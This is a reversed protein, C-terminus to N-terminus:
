DLTLALRKVYEKFDAGIEPHCLAVECNAMMIGLKNGMDYRKGVFDVATLKGEKGLQALADTLYFEGSELQKLGEELLGFVEPPM